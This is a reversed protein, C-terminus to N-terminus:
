SRPPRCSPRSTPASATSATRSARKLAGQVGFKNLYGLRDETSTDYDVGTTVTFPMAAVKDQHTWRLGAGGFTRDLVSVGGSNRVGDQTTLPIALYGDNTRNGAYLMARLTDKDSIPVEYVLGGQLNNLSRRTDFTVANTGAQQPDQAVQAATLGLPDQNDPQDLYNVVFSLSSGGAFKSGLKGTFQDKRAASHDRYGGTDFRSLNGIYNLGGATGGFTVGAKWTDWSGAWARASLTPQPPGDETFLQVVGGSHNGYLASFPGRLVEIRQATDLDFVGPSGQGDPTSVPIGDALLKIGRTGFQSRAGFGRIVIQQEQAYSDRNPVYTGPVSNLVESVNVEPKAADQIEEQGVSDIAMPLDFSPQEVRTGTVVVPATTSENSKSADEQAGVPAILAFWAGIAVATGRGNNNLM